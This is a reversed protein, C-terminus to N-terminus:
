KSLPPTQWVREGEKRKTWGQRDFSEMLPVLYKRTIGLEAKADQLTLAQPYSEYLKQAATEVAAYYFLLDDEAEVARKENILFHKLERQWKEPLGAHSSITSFPEPMLNSKKLAAEVQLMRKEWEQPYHARHSNLSIFRGDIRYEKNSAGLRILTESAQQSYPLSSATDAIDKGPRLPYVRHYEFLQATVAHVIKELHRKTYLWKGTERVLDGDLADYIEEETFAGDDKITRKQSPGTQNLFLELREAPTGRAKDKLLDVTAQGFRYKLAAPDIVEGGGVTEPPTARRLIFRSGKWVAAETDLEIQCYITEETGPDLKNRDFYIMRGTVETTGTFFKITQRQKLAYHFLSGPKMWVDVRKTPPTIESVLVTGRVAEETSVGHLNLAARDGAYAAPIKTGFSQIQKVRTEKKNPLLYLTDGEEVTGSHITGRVVTGHGTVSFSQDVPMRFIGRESRYEACRATRLAADKVAELGKGEVADTIVLEAEELFTGLVAERIDEQVLELMEEDAKSSKTVVIIGLDIGLLELIILHEKTQPMVGEDAAVTLMVADIGAVGAIMQRIFREHGPVDIIAGRVGDSLIWPAYGPEISIMREKEEALRDTEVQTLAKTLTTKGHDIHGAMGFTVFQTMQRVVKTKM